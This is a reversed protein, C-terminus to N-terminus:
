VVIVGLVEIGMDKALELEQQVLSYRSVGKEEVLVIGDCEALQRRVAARSIMDRGTELNFESLDANLKGSVREMPADAAMGTILLHKKEGAYNRINAEIMDYVADDEVYIDDGALRRLWADIFDFARKKPLRSFTGLEKTAFRNKIEKESTVKDNMIYYGGLCVVVVFGGALFGLIAYKVVDKKNVGSAPVIVESSDPKKLDKLTKETDTLNKDLTTVYNRIKQQRDLANTDVQTVVSTRLQQISHAAISTGLEDQLLLVEDNLGDLITNVLKEDPGIVSVTLIGQHSREDLADMWMYTSGMTGDTMDNGSVSLLERVYRVELDQSKAFQNLYAGNMLANKYAQILNRMEGEASKGQTEVLFDATAYYEEYPNIQMYPATLIYQNQANISAQIQEVSQELMQKETEYEDLLQQYDSAIEVEADAGASKEKVVKVGALAAAGVLAALLLLRWRYLLYFFLDKLDIEQEYTETNM